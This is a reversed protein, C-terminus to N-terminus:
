LVKQGVPLLHKRWSYDVNNQEIFEGQIMNTSENEWCVTPNLTMLLSADRLSLNTLKM